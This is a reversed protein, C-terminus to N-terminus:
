LVRIRAKLQELLNYEESKYKDNPIMHKIQENEILGILARKEEKTLGSKSIEYKRKYKEIEKKYSNCKDCSLVMTSSEKNKYGIVYILVM